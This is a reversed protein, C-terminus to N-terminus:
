PSEKQFRSGGIMKRPRPAMVSKPGSMALGRSISRPAAAWTPINPARHPARAIPERSRPISKLTACAAAMDMIPPASPGVEIKRAALSAGSSSPMVATM